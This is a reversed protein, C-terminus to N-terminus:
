FIKIPNRLDLYLSSLGIMMMITMVAYTLPMWKNVDVRHRIGKRPRSRLREYMAILVHGGDLPLVPLMNFVGVFVNISAFVELFWRVDSRAADRLLKTAGIPSLMRGEAERQQIAASKTAGDGATRLTESYNKLNNPSFFHGLAQFTGPLLTKIRSGSRSLAGAFSDKVIFQQRDDISIGIRAEKEGTFLKPVVNLDVNKGAREVTVTLTKGASSHVIASFEDITKLTTGNIAIVHDNPLFGAAAAPSGKTITPIVPGGTVTKFDIRGTGAFLVMFLTFALLLHMLSGASAMLVRRPFSKQRYTRHEDAPQVAGDLNHMGVIKVYGGFPLAKMGYETEGRRFSFLRPGFGVFFETAMTGTGKAALFHGLEHLFIMGALAAAVALISLAHASIVWALIAIVALFTVAPHVTSPRTPQTADTAGEPDATPNKTPIAETMPEGFATLDIMRDATTTGTPSAATFATAATPGQDETPDQAMLFGENAANNPDHVFEKL